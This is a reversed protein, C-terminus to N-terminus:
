VINRFQQRGAGRPAILKTIIRIERHICREGDLVIEGNDSRDDFVVCVCIKTNSVTYPSSGSPGFKIAAGRLHCLLGSRFFIKQKGRRETRIVSFQNESHRVTVAQRTKSGALRCERLYRISRRCMRLRPEIVKFLGLFHVPVSVKFDFKRFIRDGDSLGAAEWAAPVAHMAFAYVGYLVGYIGGDGGSVFDGFPEYMQSVARGIDENASLDSLLGSALVRGFDCVSSDLMLLDPGDERQLSQLVRATRLSEEGDREYLDEFPIDPYHGGLWDEVLNMARAAFRLPERAFAPAAAASLLCVTLFFAAIRKM